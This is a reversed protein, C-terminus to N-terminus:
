EVMLLVWQGVSFVSRAEELVGEIASQYQADWVWVQDICQGAFRKVSAIAREELIPLMWLEEDPELCEDVLAECWDRAIMGSKYITFCFRMLTVAVKLYLAIAPKSTATNWTWAIANEVPTVFQARAISYAEVSARAVTGFSKGLQCGTVANIENGASQIASQALAIASEWTARLRRDGDVKANLELALSKLDSMSLTNILLTM